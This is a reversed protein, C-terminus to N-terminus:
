CTTIMQLVSNQLARSQTTLIDIHVYLMGCRRYVTLLSQVIKKPTSMLYMKEM